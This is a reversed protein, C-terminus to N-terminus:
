YALGYAERLLKQLPAVYSSASVNGSTERTVSRTEKQVRTGYWAHFVGGAVTPFHPHGVSFRECHVLPHGIVGFGRELVRVTAAEGTDWKGEKALTFLSALDAKWFVMFHPHVYWGHPNGEHEGHFVAGALRHREDLRDATQELWKADVPHADSDLLVVV